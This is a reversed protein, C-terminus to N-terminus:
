KKEVAKLYKTRAKLKGNLSSILAYIYALAFCFIWGLVLLVFLKPDIPKDFKSFGQLVQIGATFNLDEKWYLLKENMDILQRNITSGDVILSSSPQEKGMIINGVEVKNSDLKLIEINTKDIMEKLRDRKFALRSKIYDGSEFGHVIGIQLSDLISNDTIKVDIYFGNPNTPTFVKQIEDGEINKVKQLISESCNFADAVEAYDQKKILNNWNDIIQIAEQNTLVPSHAILRSSYIKPLTIYKYIGWTAGAVFAIIFLIRYKKFFGLCRELLLLLDINDNASPDVITRNSDM